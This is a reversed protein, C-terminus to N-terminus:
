RERLSRPPFSLLRLSDDIDIKPWRESLLDQISENSESRQDSVPRSNFTVSSSTFTSGPAPSVMQAPGTTSPALYSVENSPASEVGMTNYDTVVFFYTKGTVLNSVLTSTANGLEITQSYVGSTTGSHLRYGAINPSSSLDWALTVVAAEVEFASCVLIILGWILLRGPNPKMNKQVSSKKVAIWNRASVSFWESSACRFHPKV